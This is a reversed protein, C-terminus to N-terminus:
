DNDSEEKSFKQIFDMIEKKKKSNTTTKDLRTEHSTSESIEKMSPLFSYIDSELHEAILYLYSIYIATNGSEYNALSARSVNIADALKAQSFGAAERKEKIKKGVLSYIFDQDIM